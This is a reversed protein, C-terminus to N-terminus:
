NACAGYGFMMVGDVGEITATSSAVLRVLTATSTAYFDVCIAPNTLRVTDAMTTTSTLNTTGSVALNGTVAMNGTQTVSGNFISSGDVQFSTLVGLTTFCTVAQCDIATGVLDSAGKLNMLGMIALIVLAVVGSFEKILKM